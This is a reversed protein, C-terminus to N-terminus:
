DRTSTSCFTWGASFRKRAGVMAFFEAEQTVYTRCYVANSGRRAAIAKGKDESRGTLVVRAGEKVFREASAAGIGSAPCPRNREPGERGRLCEGERLFPKRTLSVRGLMGM